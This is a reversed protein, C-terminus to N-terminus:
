KVIAKVAEEGEVAVVVVGAPAAIVADSSTIVTSAITQGLINTIVVKKGAAGIIQVNGNGAIVKVESTSIVENDTPTLDTTNVNFLQAQERNGLVLIGNLYSVYKSGNADAATEIRYTGDSEIAFAWTAPTIGKNGVVNITDTAVAKPKAIALSDNDGFEVRQAHVFGIRTLNDQEYKVTDNSRKAVISDNYSVMYAKADFSGVKEVEIPKTIYYAYRINNKRNVYATELGLVFDNDTAAAKLELGTRKVVAFPKVATVKSAPDGDLSIIVDTPETIEFNKYIDTVRDQLDYVFATAEDLAVVVAQGKQNYSIKGTANYTIDGTADDAEGVM